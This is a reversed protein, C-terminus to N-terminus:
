ASAEETCGLAVGEKSAVEYAERVVTEVCARSWECAGVSKNQANLVSAVPNIGANVILKKWQMAKMADATLREWRLGAATLAQGLADIKRGVALEDDMHGVVDSAAPAIYTTASDVGSVVVNGTSLARGGVYTVGHAFRWALQEAEAQHRDGGADDVAPAEGVGNQLLVVLADDKLLKAHRQQLERVTAMSDYAKVAVVVVHLREDEGDEDGDTLARIRVSSSATAEALTESLRRFAIRTTYDAGRADRLTVVPLESGGSRSDTAFLAELHKPKVLADVALTSSRAGLAAAGLRAFVITGVAGLGVVGVRLEHSRQSSLMMTQDFNATHFANLSLARQRVVGDEGVVARPAYVPTVYFPRDDGNSSGASNPLETRNMSLACLNCFTLKMKGVVPIDANVSHKCRGCMVEGCKQCNYRRQFTGIDDVCVFCTKVKDLAMMQSRRVFTQNAVRKMTVYKKLHDLNMMRHRMGSAAVWQPVKGKLDTYVAQVVDLTRRDRRSEIFVFGSRYLSGRVFGHSKEMDPCSQIKVSHLCRAFGRRGDPLSFRRQIELYCFDRNRVLVYPSRLVSWRIGIFMTSDRADYPSIEYLIVSHLLDPSLKTELQVNPHAVDVEFLEMVEELSSEMQTSGRVYHVAKKNAAARVRVKEVRISEYQEAFEWKLDDLPPLRSHQSSAGDGDGSDEFDSAGSAGADAFVEGAAFRLLEDCALNAERTIQATRSPSLPPCRFKKLKPQSSGRLPM